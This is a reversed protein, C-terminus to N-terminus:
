ACPKESTPRVMSRSMRRASAMAMGIVITRSTSTKPLATAAPRGSSM